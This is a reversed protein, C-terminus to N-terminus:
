KLLIRNSLLSIVFCVVLMILLNIAEQSTAVAFTYLPPLFFFDFALVSLFSIMMSVGFGLYIASIVVSLIYLMDVNAPDVIAAMKILEGVLTTVIVLGVGM